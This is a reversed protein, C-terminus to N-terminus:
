RLIAAGISGDIIFGIIVWKLTQDVNFEDEKKFTSGNHIRTVMYAFFSGIAAGCFFFKVLEVMNFM